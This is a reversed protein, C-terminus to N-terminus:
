KKVTIKSWVTFGNSYTVYCIAFLVSTKEYIDLYFERNEDGHNKPRARMWDRLVPNKCDEAMYVGIEDVDGAGDLVVKATLNSEDDVGIALEAPKSIFVQREKVFKDLFMFM